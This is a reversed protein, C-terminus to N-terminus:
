HVTINRDDKIIALIRKDQPVILIRGIPTDVEIAGLSVGDAIMAMVANQIMLTHDQTLDINDSSIGINAGNIVLIHDQTLTLNDATMGIAAEQIILAAGTNLAVNDAVMALAADQIALQHDQSLTINEGLVALAADQIVLDIATSLTVNDAVMALAGDAIALIHAQTLTINDSVMALTAEQIALQHAQTLAINDATMGLAADQIILDTGGGGAATFGASYFEDYHNYITTGTSTNQRVFGAQGATHPTTADTYTTILGNTPFGDGDFTTPNHYIKIVTDGTGDDDVVIWVEDGTNMAVATNVLSGASGGTTKVINNALGSWINNIDWIRLYYGDGDNNGIYCGPWTGYYDGNTVGILVGAAQKRGYTGHATLVRLTSIAASGLTSSIANNTGDSRVQTGYDSGGDGDYGEGWKSGDSLPNEVSLTSADIDYTAM